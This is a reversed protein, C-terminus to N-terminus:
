IDFNAKHVEFDFDVYKDLHVTLINDDDDRLFHVFIM